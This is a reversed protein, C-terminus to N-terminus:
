DCGRHQPMHKQMKTQSNDPVTTPSLIADSCCCYDLLNKVKLGCQASCKIVMFADTANSGSQQVLMQRHFRLTRKARYSFVAAVMQDPGDPIQWGGVSGEMLDAGLRIFLQASTM